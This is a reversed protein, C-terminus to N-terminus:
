DTVAVPVEFTRADFDGFRTNVTLTWDGGFPIDVGQAMVHGGASLLEVPLAAIRGDDPAITATVEDPATGDDGLITVHIQNRGVSAPEVTIYATAGDATDRVETSLPGAAEVTRNPTSGSLWGTAALIGLALLVEAGVLELLRGSRALARRSLMAVGLVVGVVLLKVILARGYDTHWVDGLADLQRVAQTGGTLVLVVVAITAVSSFRRAVLRAEDGDTATLGRVLAALGGFWVSMAGVHVITLVVGGTPVKGTSGHGGYAVAIGFAAAMLGWLAGLWRAPVRSALLPGAGLAVVGLGAVAAWAKGSRLDLVGDFTTDLVAGESAIRLVGAVVVIVAGGVVIAMIAQDGRGGPWVLLVFAGVGLVLAIGLYTLARLAALAGEEATTTGTATSSPDIIPPAGDGVTFTFAGAIPHGDDSVIKWNVVYGGDPLAPVTAVVAVGDTRPAGIEISAGNGDLLTVSDDLVSVPETFTLTIAAPSTDLQAGASPDSSLLEAHAFARGFGGLVAVVMLVITAALLRRGGVGGRVRSTRGAPAMEDGRAPADALVDLPSM